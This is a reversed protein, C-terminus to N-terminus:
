ERIDQMSYYALNIVILIYGGMIGAAFTWIVVDHDIKYMIIAGLIAAAFRNLIGLSPIKRKQIISEGLQEIRRGLIWICYISVFLGIGIGLFYNSFPTFTWGILIILFLYYMQIKFARLSMRIM